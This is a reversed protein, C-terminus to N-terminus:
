MKTKQYHNTALGAANGEEEDQRYSAKYPLRPLPEVNEVLPIVSIIGCGAYFLNIDNEQFWYVDQKM